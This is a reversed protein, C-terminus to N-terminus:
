RAGGGAAAAASLEVYAAVKAVRRRDLRSVLAAGGDEAELEALRACLAEFRQPLECALLRVGAVLADSDEDDSPALRTPKRSAFSLKYLENAVIYNADALADFARRLRARHEASARARGAADKAAASLPLLHKQLARGAERVADRWDGGAEAACARAVAGSLAEM